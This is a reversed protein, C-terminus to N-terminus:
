ASPRLFIPSSWARPAAPSLCDDSFDTRPDGHCPSVDICEGEEDYSCRLGGGNIMPEEPQVARVYYLVERGESTYDPDEFEVRCGARDPECPFVRWPDEILEAIDEGSAIQPRIRVVEIRDIPRRTESPFYCEGRCLREIGEPGLADQSTTPCGPKQEFAGAARVVFRPAADTEIESGMPRKTGDPAFWDFWLLIRGGSTAYVERRHFADWIAERARGTSHAAVLGGTVWFSAQREMHRLRALGLPANEHDYRVSEPAPDRDDMFRTRAMAETRAGTVDTMGYRDVEKYGTGPRARHNDSSGILGFRYRLPSEGEPEHTIALAYQGTTMPRHDFGPLFCDECQGCGLWDEVSTGPVTWYGTVSADVHNQRASAVREECLESAPDECRERIIEGARWCCPLYDESPEPCSRKGDAAIEVARWDRYEESNGHGSFLEFLIQRDPDHHEPTLQKDFSTGPPTNLGWANGHPIVIADHDWQDLKEFLTQPDAATEHCDEPLERVDVGAECRPTDAIEQYYTGVAWYVDRNEFDMVSMMLRAMPGIPSTGLQERPAAIARTPVRDEATDLLVVNKHGYHKNPDLDVQSWEWGLFAVLDPNEANGAVANCQRISEQTEAWRRPTIGEAHDNISWFDLASCFRAFDCADAPPHAGEGGALPLALAMADPSFTTHVHLDGFLIQKGDGEVGLAAEVDQEAARSAAMREAPAAVDTVTGPGWHEGGCALFVAVFGLLAFRVGRMEWGMM